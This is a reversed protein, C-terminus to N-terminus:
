HGLEAQNADFNTWYHFLEFYGLVYTQPGIPQIQHTGQSFNQCSMTQRVQANIVGIQGSKCWLEQLLPVTCFAGFCSDLTWHPPDPRENCFIGVRSRQVFKHMLLVPKAWKAIFNTYYSFMAFRGLVHTQPALVHMAHTRQSFNRRSKTAHVQSNIAGTQGTKCRLEDLFPVLRFAGFWSKPNWHRPDSVNAVLFDLAVDNCSSTCYNCWNPGNQMSTLGTVFRDSVCWFMLNLDL